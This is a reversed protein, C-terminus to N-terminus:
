TLRSGTEQDARGARAAGCRVPEVAEHDRHVTADDSPERAADFGAIRGSLSNGREDDRVGKLLRPLRVLPM